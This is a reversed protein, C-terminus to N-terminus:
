RILFVSMLAGKLGVASMSATLGDVFTEAFDRAFGAAFVVVAFAVLAAVGTGVVVLNVLNAVVEMAEEDGAEAGDGTLDVAFGPRLGLVGTFGFALVGNLVTGLSM